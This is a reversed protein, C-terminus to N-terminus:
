GNDPRDDRYWPGLYNVRIQDGDIVVAEAWTPGTKPFEFDFHGCSTMDPLLFEAIAPNETARLWGRTGPDVMMFGLREPIDLSKSRWRPIVGGRQQEIFEMWVPATSPTPWTDGPMAVLDPDQLWARMGEYDTFDSPFEDIAIQAATRSALGAQILIAVQRSLSGSELAASSLLPEDDFIGEDNAKSRVRLAEIAWTMRYVFAAEVVEPADKCLAYIMAMPQGGLWARLLQEWNEPLEDMAFPPISFVVKGVGYLATTAGDLDSAIIAAEAELILNNLDPAAADLAQGTVLGVGAFFYGKRQAPTSNRWIFSARSNLLAQINKQSGDDCRALRRMLFSDKLMEDLAMAIGDEDSNVDGLLSLLASDLLAGDTQWSTDDKLSGPPDSWFDRQNLIYETVDDDPGLESKLKRLLELFLTLLGSELEREKIAAQLRNWQREAKSDGCIGIVQGDSDVFARGARGAVNAVEESKLPMRQNVSSDFREFAAFLLCSASLNLGQALTPSAITIKLVGDALLTDMERIFPRPLSAHHIAIGARLCTLVPDDDPLWEEGVRLARGIRDVDVDLGTIIGKAQLSVFVKALSRVTRKEPCYILVTQGERALRLATALSLEAGSNPFVYNAGKRGQWRHYEVFDLVFSEEADVKVEYRFTGRPRDFRVTGYRLRTPRWSNKIPDGDEGSRLWSVFDDEQEGDPLMASLCVVRRGAQDARRLLRQVLVEYRLGRDNAGLMHGEDFVVLGVDDLLSQDNRLAFDLKEPTCVVIARNGLSDVDSSSMGASGYLSSVDYGLPRFTNRLTRETQASLSRLPTVFVARRGGALCRLISLEAIRTKGASTPLSAVLDDHEDMLRSVFGVQSPWLEIESFRRNALVAIFLSRLANWPNTGDLEKPLLNRLAHSWLDDLLHRTIRNIWWDAVFGSELCFQEGKALLEVANSVDIEQGMRIAYLFTSMARFYNEEMALHVLGAEDLEDEEDNLRAILSDDSRSDDNLARFIESEVLDLRRLILHRLVFEMRTSHRVDSDYSKQLVSFARASFRGLHYACAALIQLFGRGEHEPDGNRVSTEFCEGAVEFAQDLLENTLIDESAAITRRADRGQLASQLLGFGIASLQEDLARTLAEPSYEPLVGRRRMNARAFGRATARLEQNAALDSTIRAAIVAADGLDQGEPV